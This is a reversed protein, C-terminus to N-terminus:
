LYKIHSCHFEPSVTGIILGHYLGLKRKTPCLCVIRLWILRWLVRRRILNEVTQKSFNRNYKFLFSFYWGVVRFNSISEDLQYPHSFVNPIFPNLILIELEPEFRM